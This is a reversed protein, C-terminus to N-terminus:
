LGQSKASEMKLALLSRTLDKEYQIERVSVRRGEEGMNLAWTIVLVNPGGPYDLSLEM